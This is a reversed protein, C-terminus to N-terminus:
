VHSTPTVRRFQAVRDNTIDYMAMVTLEAEAWAKEANNFPAGHGKCRFLEIEFMEGNTLKEAMVILGFEPAVIGEEGITVIRSDDNIPRVYFEATDGDTFAVSGSGGTITLGYNPVDVTGGTGPVTLPSSTIKMLDDEIAGDTGRKRDIDSSIYLDVTTASVYKVIYKGFKMDAESGSKAAVSAIGTTADAISTGNVNAISSVNGSAEAANDTVSKGLFLEWVWDPYERMTIAVEPNNVNDEIAWPYRQSGGHVAVMDGAFNVNATGLVRATGYPAGTSRNYPTVSHVGFQQNPKSLAM